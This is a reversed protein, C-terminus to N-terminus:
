MANQQGRPNCLNSVENTVWSQIKKRQRGFVEETTSLLVEKLSNSLTDVDSRLSCRARNPTNTNTDKHTNQELQTIM